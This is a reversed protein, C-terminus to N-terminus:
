KNKNYFHNLQDNVIKNLKQQLHRNYANSQTTNYRRVLEASRRISGTYFKQFLPVGGFYATIFATQSMEFVIWGVAGLQLMLAVMGEGIAHAYMQGAGPVFRAWQRAKYADLLHPQNSYLAQENNDTTPLYQELKQLQEAAAEWQRLENLILLHLWKTKIFFVSDNINPAVAEIFLLAQYPENALLAALAGEFYLSDTTNKVFNEDSITLLRKWIASYQRTNKQAQIKGYLAKGKQHYNTAFFFAKEYLLAAQEYQKTAMLTDAQAHYNQSNALIGTLLM